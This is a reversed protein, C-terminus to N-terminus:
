SLSCDRCEEQHKGSAGDVGMPVFIEPAVQYLYEMMAQHAQDRAQPEKLSLLIAKRHQILSWILGMSILGIGVSSLIATEISIVGALALFAILATAVYIYMRVQGSLWSQHRISWISLRVGISHPTRKDNRTM